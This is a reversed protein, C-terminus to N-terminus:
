SLSKAMLNQARSRYLGLTNLPFYYLVFRLLTLSRVCLDVSSLEAVVFFRYYSPPNIPKLKWSDCHRKLFHLVPSEFLTIAVKQSYCFSRSNANPHKPTSSDSNADCLVERLFLTSVLGNSM